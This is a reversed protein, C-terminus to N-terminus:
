LTIITDIIEKNSKSGWYRFWADIAEDAEKQYQPNGTEIHNVMIWLDVYEFNIGAM